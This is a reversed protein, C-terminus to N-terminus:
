LMVGGDAPASPGSESSASQLLARAHELAVDADPHGSLLRAIERVRADDRVPEVRTRTRDDVLEKHVVFHTTAAAAISATHTVVIVQRRTALRQLRAAVGLAARGGLGTDIEDLVISERGEGLLEAMALVIRSLEGGSAGRGLPTPELDPSAAFWFAPVGEAGELRIEFRARELGLAGLAETVHRRLVEAAADREARLASAAQELHREAELREAELEEMLAESGEILALARRREERAEIVAELTPGYRRKLHSLQALRAQAAELAAPDSELREFQDRVEEAVDTAEALLSELREALAPFARQVARASQGLRDTISNTGVLDRHLSFLEARLADADGLRDVLETLENDEEPNALEASELEALEFGLREREREAHDHDDRARRLAATADALRERARHWARDDIGGIRDLIARQQDPQTVFVAQHQGVVQVARAVFSALEGVAVLEGDIRARSRGERTVEREVVAEHGDVDVIARVRAREDSAGVLDSRAREGLLLGIAGVILTKGAGTEGTLAVLGGPLELSAAEVVGLNRVELLSLM